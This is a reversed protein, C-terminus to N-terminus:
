PGIEKSSATTPVIGAAVVLGNGILIALTPALDFDADADLGLMGAAGLTADACLAAVFAAEGAGLRMTIVELGRRAVLVSEPQWDIQGAATRGPQNRSWLTHLPHVSTVVNVSPHLTLRLTDPSATAVSELTQPAVSPTDAAHYARGRALELRAVDSLYPLQAVPPFSRLFDPLGTGYDMMLPSRPPHLRAFEAFMAQAFDPGVLRVIVPFRKALADTLAVMVNNRYVAFRREIEDPDPATLGGPLGSGLVGARFADQLDALSPM